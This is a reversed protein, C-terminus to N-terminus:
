GKVKAGGGCAPAASSTGSPTAHFQKQQETQEGCHGDEPMAAVRVRRRTFFGAQGSVRRQGAANCLRMVEAM